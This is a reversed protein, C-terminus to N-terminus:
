YIKYTNHTKAWQENIPVIWFPKKIYEYSNKFGKEMEDFTKYIRSGGSGIGAYTTLKYGNEVIEYKMMIYM